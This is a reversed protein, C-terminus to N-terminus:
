KRLWFFDRHDTRIFFGCAMLFKKRVSPVKTRTRFQKVEASDM